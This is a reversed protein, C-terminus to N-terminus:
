LKVNGVNQNGSGNDDIELNSASSLVNGIVINNDGNVEIADNDTSIKCGAIYNNNSINYTRIGKVTSISCNITSHILRTNSGALTICQGIDTSGTINLYNIVVTLEGEISVSGSDSDSDYSVESIYINSYNPINGGASKSALSVSNGIVGLYIDISPINSNPLNNNIFNLLQTLADNGNDATFWEKYITNEVFPLSSGLDQPKFLSTM